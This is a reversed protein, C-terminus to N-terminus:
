TGSYIACGAFTTSFGYWRQVLQLPRRPQQVEAGRLLIGDKITLGDNLTLTDGRWAGATAETFLASPTATDSDIYVLVRAGDFTDFVLNDRAHLSTVPYFRAGADSWVGLGMEFRPLRVDAQTITAVIPPLWVPEAAVRQAEAFNDLPARVADIPVPVFRAKPYTRAVTGAQSHILSGVRVLTKGLMDGYM